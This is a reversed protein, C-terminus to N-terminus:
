FLIVDQYMQTSQEPTCVCVCIGLTEYGGGEQTSPLIEIYLGGIEGIHFILLYAVEKKFTPMLKVIAATVDHLAEAIGLHEEASLSHLYNKSTDETAIIAELPKKICFPTLLVVKGERYSKIKLDAPTKEQLIASFGRNSHQLLRMDNSISLPMINSHIIQLHGHTLSSGVSRGRGKIIGLYGHFGNEHLPM